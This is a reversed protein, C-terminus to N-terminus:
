KTHMHVTFLFALTFTHLDSSLMRSATRMNSPGLAMLDDPVKGVLVVLWDGCGIILTKKTIVSLLGMFRLSSFFCFLGEFRLFTEKVNKNKHLM